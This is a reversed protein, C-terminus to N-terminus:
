AEILQMSVCKTMLAKQLEDQKGTMFQRYRAACADTEENTM